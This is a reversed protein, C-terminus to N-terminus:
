VVAQLSLPYIEINREIDGSAMLALNQQMAASRDRSGDNICVIEFRVSEGSELIPLTTAFFADIAEDEDHVPVG